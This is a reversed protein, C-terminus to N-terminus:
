FTVIILENSEYIHSRISYTYNTRRRRSYCSLRLHCDRVQISPPKNNVRQFSAFRGVANRAPRMESTWLFVVGQTRGGDRSCYSRTPLWNQIGSATWSFECCVRRWREKGDSIRASQECTNWRQRISAFRRLPGNVRTQSRNDFTPISASWRLLFSGRGMQQRMLRDTEQTTGDQCQPLAPSNLSMIGFRAPSRLHNPTGSMGELVCTSRESEERDIRTNTYSTNM